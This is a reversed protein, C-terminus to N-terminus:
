AARPDAEAVAIAEELFGPDVDTDPNLLFVWEAGGELARRVGLGNGGAFGLNSGAEIVTVWPFRERVLAPTGDASANDVAIVEAGHLRAAALSGFCAEVDRASDYTVVVISVRPM